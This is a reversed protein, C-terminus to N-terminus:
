FARRYDEWRHRANEGSEAREYCRRTEVHHAAREPAERGDIPLVDAVNEVLHLGLAAAGEDIRANSFVGHTEAVARVHAVVPLRVFDGDLEFAVRAGISVRATEARSEFFGIFIKVVNAEGFHLRLDHAKAHAGVARVYPSVV